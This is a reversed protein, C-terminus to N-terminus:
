GIILLAIFPILNFTIVFIKYLGIFSYIVVNFKERPIAFWRNQMKYIWDGAFACFLFSLIFLAGNIITCWMFFARITNIDM